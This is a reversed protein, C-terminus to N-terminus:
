TPGDKSRSSKDAQQDAKQSRDDTNHGNIQQEQFLTSAGRLSSVKDYTKM